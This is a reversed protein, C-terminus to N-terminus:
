NLGRESATVLIPNLEMEFTGMNRFPIDLNPDCLKLDFALLLTPIVMKIELEAISRFLM